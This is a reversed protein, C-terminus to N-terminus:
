QQARPPYRPDILTMYGFNAIYDGVILDFSIGTTSQWPGRLTKAREIIVFGKPHLKIRYWKGEFHQIRPKDRRVKVTKSVFTGEVNSNPTVRM